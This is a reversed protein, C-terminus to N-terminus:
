DAARAAPVTALDPVLRLWRGDPGDYRRPDDAHAEIVRRANRRGPCPSVHGCAGCRGAGNDTHARYAAVCVTHLSLRRAVRVTVVSSGDRHPLTIM